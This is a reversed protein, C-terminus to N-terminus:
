ALLAHKHHPLFSCAAGWVGDGRLGQTDKAKEQGQHNHRGAPKTHVHHVRLYLSKSGM